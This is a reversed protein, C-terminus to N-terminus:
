IATDGHKDRTHVSAGAMLLLEVSRLSSSQLAAHLATRGEYDQLTILASAQLLAKVAEDDGRLAAWFLPSNGVKDLTNVEHMHAPEQLVISLDSFQVGVVVRHIYSIDWLESHSSSIGFFTSEYAKALSTTGQSSLIYSLVFQAPPQGLDDEFYPDVGLDLLFKCTEIHGLELPFHLISNGNQSLDNPSAKRKKFM